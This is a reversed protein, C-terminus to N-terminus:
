SKQIDLVHGSPRRVAYATPNPRMASGSRTLNVLVDMYAVVVGRVKLHRRVCVACGTSRPVGVM